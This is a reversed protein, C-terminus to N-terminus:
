DALVEGVVNALPESCRPCPDGESWLVARDGLCLECRYTLAGPRHLVLPAAAQADASPPSPSGTVELFRAVSEPSAEVVPENVV